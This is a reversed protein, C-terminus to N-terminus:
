PKLWTQATPDFTWAQAEEAGRLAHQPFSRQIQAVASASLTVALVGALACRYMTNMWHSDCIM